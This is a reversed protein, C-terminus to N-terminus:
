GPIKGNYSYAIGNMCLPIACKRKMCKGWEDGMPGGQLLSLKADSVSSLFLRFFCCIGIRRFYLYCYFHVYISLSRLKIVVESQLWAIEVLHHHAACDRVVLRAALQAEEGLFVEVCPQFPYPHFRLDLDVALCGVIQYCM